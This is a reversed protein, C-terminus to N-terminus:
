VNALWKLPGFRIFYGLAKYFNRKSKYKELKYCLSTCSLTLNTEYFVLCITLANLVRCSLLKIVLTKIFVVVCEVFKLMFM